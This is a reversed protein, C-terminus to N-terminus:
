AITASEHGMARRILEINWDATCYKRREANALTDKMDMSHPVTGIIPVDALKHIMKRNDEIVDAEDNHINNLIVGAIPVQRKRLADVTLVTHNITGVGARAVIVAPARLSEMWDIVCYGDTTLPVYLGGAGEVLVNGYDRKLDNLKAEISSFNIKVGELEAALHPSCPKKLLYLCADEMPAERVLRYMEPDPAVWSGDQEIAGSQIPKFPFCGHGHEDLFGSLLSTVMTKGVDTDTGTVFLVSM